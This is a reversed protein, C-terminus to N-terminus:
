EDASPPALWSWGDDDIIRGAARAEPYSPGEVPRAAYHPGFAVAGPATPACTEWLGGHSDYFKEPM